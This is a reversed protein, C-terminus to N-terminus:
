TIFIFWCLLVARDYNTRLTTVPYEINWPPNKETMKGKLKQKPPPTPTTIFGIIILKKKEKLM